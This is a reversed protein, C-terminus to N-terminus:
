TKPAQTHKLWGLPHASFGHCVSGDPFDVNWNEWTSAEGAMAWRGWRARIIARIADPRGVHNLAAFVYHHMFPSALILKEPGGADDLDLSRAIIRDALALAEAGAVVGTLLLLALSLQGAPAAQPSEAWGTATRFTEDIRARLLDAQASWDKALDPVMALRAATQLGHLYRLNYTLNPERRDQGSWDLFLRRGPEARLLGDPAVDQRFRALMRELTPMRDAIFGAADAAGPHARYMELLEIWAFNYDTVVYAHTKSPLVSPLIGDALVGQEAMVIARMLPRADDSIGQLAFAEAVVDGLWQSSERWISDVFGDQLCARITRACMAAAADLVADGQAPLAAGTLPARFSRAYFAVEPVGDSVADLRFILYRGGRPSFPEISQPGPRLHFVDSPRMRCYTDPDSLLVTGDRLKEAYSITLREGGKAHITAGGLCVLSQGLDFIWIATDGSQMQSPIPGAPCAAFARRLDQHPDPLASADMRGFRTQWPTTLARLDEVLLPVDRPDLGSWIPSEPPAVIRPTAWGEPAETQWDCDRTMDRREIGAGYISIRPVLADWSADRRVRWSQDSVVAIAGDLSIWGLWGAAGRHVYAFHSYGPSYVQVAIRNVGAQLYPAIDLVDMAQAWPWCRAPGRAVTAGNVWLRYRSDATLTFLAEGPATPVDLDYRFNLYTEALDFAHDSGIWYAGEPVQM